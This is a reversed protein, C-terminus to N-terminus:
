VVGLLDVQRFYFSKDPETHEKISKGSISRIAPHRLVILCIPVISNKQIARRM